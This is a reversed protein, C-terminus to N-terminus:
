ASELSAVYDRVVQDIGLRAHIAAQFAAGLQKRWAPNRYLDLIRRALDEPDGEAFCVLHEGDRLGYAGLYSPRSNAVVPVGCAAAELTTLSAFWSGKHPAVYLDAGNYVAGLAEHGVAGAFTVRDWVGLEGALAELNAWEPGEGALVFHVGPLAEALRPLAQLIVQQDKLAICRGVNLLVFQDDGVGWAARQQARQAPDAHFLDVSVGQFSLKLKHEPVGDARALDILDPTVMHATPFLSLIARLGMRGLWTNRPVRYDSGHIRVTCRVGRKRLMPRALWGVWGCPVVFEFIIGDPRYARIQRLLHRRGKLTFEAMYLASSLPSRLEEFRRSRFPFRVVEVHGMQESLPDAPSYQVTLVRVAHGLRGMAQVQPLLFESDIPYTRNPFSQSFLLIRM